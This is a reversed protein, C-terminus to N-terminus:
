GWSSRRCLYRTRCIVSADIEHGRWRGRNSDLGAPQTNRGTQDASRVSLPARSNANGRRGRRLRRQAGCDCLRRGRGVRTANHRVSEVPRAGRAHLGRLADVRRDADSLRLRGVEPSPVRTAQPASLGDGRGPAVGGGHRGHAPSRRGLVDSTGLAALHQRAGDHVRPCSQRGSRDSPPVQARARSRANPVRRRRCRCAWRGRRDALWRGGGIGNAERAPIRDSTM